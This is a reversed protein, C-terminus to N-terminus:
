FDCGASGGCGGSSFDGAGSDYSPPPPPSSPPDYSPPPPPPPPSALAYSLIAYQLVPDVPAPYPSPSTSSAAPPGSPAGTRKPPATGSGGQPPVVRWVPAPAATGAAKPKPAFLTKLWRIM